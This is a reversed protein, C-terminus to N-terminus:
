RWTVGMSPVCRPVRRRQVVRAGRRLVDGARARARLRSGESSRLVRRSQEALENALGNAKQELTALAAKDKRRESELWNLMQTVQTLDDM